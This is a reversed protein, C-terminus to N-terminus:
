RAPQVGDPLDLTWATTEITFRAKEYARIARANSVTVALRLVPQGTLRHASWLLLAPGLGAYRPDPDRWVDIVWPGEGPRDSVLIGGVVRGDQVVLASADCLLPGLGGEECFYRFYSDIPADDGPQRDPHDAPYAAWWSPLVDLWPVPPLGGSRFSRAGFVEDDPAPIPLPLRM